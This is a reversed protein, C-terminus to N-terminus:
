NMLLIPCLRLSRPLIGTSIWGCRVPGNDGFKVVGLLVAFFDDLPPLTSVEKEGLPGLLLASAGLSAVVPSQPKVPQSVAGM